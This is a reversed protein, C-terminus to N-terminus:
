APEAVVVMEDFLNVYISVGQILKLPAFLPSLIPHLRGAREAVFGLSV